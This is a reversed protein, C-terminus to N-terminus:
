NIGLFDSLDRAGHVVHMIEVRDTVRYMVVYAFVVWFRVAPDGVEIRRHGIGPHDALRQFESRLRQTLRLATLPGANEEVYTLIEDLEARAQPSLRYRASM